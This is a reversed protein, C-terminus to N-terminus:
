AVRATIAFSYDNSTGGTPTVSITTGSDVVRGRFSFAASRRDFITAGIVGGTLYQEDDLAIVSLMLDNEQTVVYGTTAAGDLEEELSQCCLHDLALPVTTIPASSIATGTGAAGGLAIIRGVGREKYSKWARGAVPTGSFGGSIQSATTTATSSFTATVVDKPDIRIGFVPNVVSDNWFINSPGTADGAVLSLWLKDDGVKLVETHVDARSRTIDHGCPTVHFRHAILPSKPSTTPLDEGTSGADLAQEGMGYFMSQQSM